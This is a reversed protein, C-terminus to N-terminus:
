SAKAKLRGIMGRILPWLLILACAILFVASIPRNFFITFDNSSLLMSQRLNYELNPGLIVGLVLSAIPFGLKILLYGLVGFVLMAGIDFISNNLFYVGIICFAAILPTMYAEAKRIISVFFPVFLTNLILLMINAILLGAIAAWIIDGSREMMMPGPQLGIVVLAGLLIATGGSGPIGLSFLPIMAGGLAATSSAEPSSLGKTAGKGFQEPNKSIKKEVSYAIFTSITAGAGPLVGVLFGVVSGRVMAWFDKMVTSVKPFLDAFPIKSQMNEFSVKREIRMFVESMGFLGVAVVAFHIGDWLGMQGFTFRENGSLPDMGIMSILLGLLVAILPKFPKKETLGSTALLAFLMLSFYEPAGFLYAIEGMYSVLLVLGALGILGGVFSAVASLTLAFGAKGQRTLPFGDFTAVVAPEEGPVNILISTIRGGYVAGLYVGMLMLLASVPDMGFVLPLLITMGTIAGLGPLAGVLTGLAVGLFSWFLYVPAIVEGLGTFFEQLQM